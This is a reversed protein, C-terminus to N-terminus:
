DVVYSVRTRVVERGLFPDDWTPYAFPHVGDDHSAKSLTLARKSERQGTCDAFATRKETVIDGRPRRQIKVFFIRPRSDFIPEVLQSHLHVIRKQFVEAQMFRSM